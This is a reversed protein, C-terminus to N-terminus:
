ESLDDGRRSKRSEQWWYLPVFVVVFATGLGPIAGLGQYIITLLSSSGHDSERIILAAV